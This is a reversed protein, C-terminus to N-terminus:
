GGGAEAPAAVEAAADPDAGEELPPPEEQPPAEPWPRREIRMEGPALREAERAARARRLRLLIHDTVAVFVAVGAAIGMVQLFESNSLQAAGAPKLPWPAYRRNDWSFNDYYGWKYTDLVVGTFFMAFPYAGFAIIEGRRLDRLWQPFEPAAAGAEASGGASQARLPGAPIASLLILTLFFATRKM